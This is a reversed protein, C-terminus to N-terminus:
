RRLRGEAAAVHEPEDVRGFGRELSQSQDHDNNRDRVLAQKQRASRDAEQLPGAAATKSDSHLDAHSDTAAPSQHSDADAHRDTDTDEDPEVDADRNTIGNSDPDALRHPHGHSLRDQKREQDPQSQSVEDSANCDAADDRDSYYPRATDSSADRDPARFHGIAAADQKAHADAHGIADPNADPHIHADCDPEDTDRHM